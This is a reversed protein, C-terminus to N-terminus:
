KGVIVGGGLVREKDYIVASQGPAVARQKESFRVIVNAGEFSVRADVPVQRYRISVQYKKNEEPAENIWSLDQLRATFSFLREDNAGGVILENKELDKDVVYYPVGGGFSGVGKRQGITYFNLGKHEGVIEGSSTRVVGKKVDLKGGLFDRLKVDGVFCIGQSDKKDANPLGFGRAIKRVEPKELEGVPFLTKRLSDAGVRYLFYSQDKNDDVGCFLFVRGSEEREVRAYHGTAIYDPNFIKVAKEFFVGFKIASNCLIDPNPSRSANYEKIFYDYVLERYEDTLDFRYFPINLHSAARRAWYEDEKASCFNSEDDWCKMFAGIVDFGEKKLLAASVSSDVGGSMAVVVRGKNKSNM